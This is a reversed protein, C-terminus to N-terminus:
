IEVWGGVDMCKVGEARYMAIDEPRDDFALFPSFGDARLAMLHGRKVQDSPRRDHDERMMLKIRGAWPMHIGLWDSTVGRIREPRATVFINEAWADFAQACDLLPSIPADQMVLAPEFFRDWDKAGGTIFGLRHGADAVTGDIDFIVAPKM